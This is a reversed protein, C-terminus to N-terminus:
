CRIFLGENASLLELALQCDTLEQQLTAISQLLAHLLLWCRCGVVKEGGGGGGGEM